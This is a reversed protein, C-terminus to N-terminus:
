EILGLDPDRTHQNPVRRFRRPGFGDPARYSGKLNLIQPVDEAILLKWTRGVAFPFSPDAGSRKICTLSTNKSVRPDRANGARAGERPDILVTKRAAAPGDAHGNTTPGVGGSEQQLGLHKTGLQLANHV